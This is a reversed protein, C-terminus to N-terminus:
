EWDQMSIDDLAADWVAADLPRYSEHRRRTEYGLALAIKFLKATMDERGQKVYMWDAMALTALEDACEYSAVDTDNNAVSDIISRIQRRMEQESM